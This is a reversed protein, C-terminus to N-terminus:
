IIKWKDVQIGLRKIKARMTNRNIGLVRAAKLQNGETRELVYEFLPREVAELISKYLVGNKEKRLNEELGIVTDKLSSEASPNNKNVMSSADYGAQALVHMLLEKIKDENNESITITIM